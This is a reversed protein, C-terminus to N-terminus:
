ATHSKTKKASEASKGFIAFILCLAAANALIMPIALLEVTQWATIINGSFDPYPKTFILILGMHMVEALAGTLAGWLPKILKASFISGLIGGALGSLLTAASCAIQTPGGLVFRVGGGLIGAILGAAPGGLCGAMLAGADRVNVLVGSDTEFASLSAYICFIGGILGLLLISRPDRGPKASGFVLGTKHILYAVVLIVAVTGVLSVIMGQIYEWSM